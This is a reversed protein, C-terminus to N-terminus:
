WDPAPGIQTPVRPLSRIRHVPLTSGPVEQNIFWGETALSEDDEPEMMHFLLGARKQGARVIWSGAPFEVTRPELSVSFTRAIFGEFPDARSVSDVRFSEVEVRVPELTREVALGHLALHRAVDERHAEIVYGEPRIRGMVPRRGDRIPIDLRVLQGDVWVQYPAEHTVFSEWRVFISDGPNWRSGLEIMERRAEAVATLVRQPNEAVYRSLGEMATRQMRARREIGPRPDPQRLSEFLLTIAGQQGGYSSLSRAGGGGRALSPLSDRLEAPIGLVEPDGPNRPPLTRALQEVLSRPVIHYFYHNFGAEELASVVAPLVENETVRVITEPGYQNRPYLTYFDYFRPPGFAEHADVIVHPEWRVIGQSVLARTEPNELRVYDRNLNYGTPNTRTGVSDAEAADPNIQPVLVFIVEDLLHQLRGAAVDRAFLMLGEKGAPENGHVQAAIFVIPKGTAHAEAPTTVAPNAVTLTLIERRERSWGLRFTRVHPSRAQLDRYFANVEAHSSLSEWRNAEGPTLLATDQVTGHASACGPLLLVALLSLGPRLARPLVIRNQHM